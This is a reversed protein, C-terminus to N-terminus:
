AAAEAAPQPQVDMIEADIEIKIDKGVLWGGTELAVNWNLGWEERNIKGTAAFGASWVGWPAKAKGLFDVDLVVPKSTGKITLDGHM